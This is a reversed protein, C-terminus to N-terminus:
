PQRDPSRACRFGIFWDGFEPEYSGRVASRLARPSSYSAGGRLVRSYGAPPGTPDLRASAPYTGDWDAVWELVNGHMDHLGWDNPNKKGVPHLTRDANKEYWAYDGLLKEDDGFSWATRSGARAAYEWEAETPLRGGFYTCAARALTWSVNVAPLEDQGQHKPQFRRYQENTIETKGIWFESLTVEHAPKENGGAQRDNGASGMTFTGPCIRVFVIGAEGPEEKPVCKAAPVPAPAAKPRTPEQRPFYQAFLFVAIGLLTLLGLWASAGWRARAKQHPREQAATAPMVAATASPTKAPATAPATVAKPAATPTVPRKSRAPREGTIGWQLRDLGEETLGGRLDVWTFGKLFIPLVPKEPAGPLLVPIVPLNRDVFESLCGRMEKDQWPGLGDKGVLVASAKTIEIVEELAEQWPRGPVLEWEDLWVKLGRDQLAEALARVAPKDRSNHSLFVDFSKTM